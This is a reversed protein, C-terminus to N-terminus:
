EKATGRVIRVVVWAIFLFIIIGASDIMWDTFKGTRGDIFLQHFEDTAAYLSAVTFALPYVGRFFGFGQYLANFSLLGLIGFETMHAAKRVCVTIIEVTIASPSLHFFDCILAVIGGSTNSSDDGNQSSFLFIVVMWAIVAAASIWFRSSHKFSM